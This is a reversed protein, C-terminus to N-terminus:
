CTKVKTVAKVSGKKKLQKMIINCANFIESNEAITIINGDQQIGKEVIAGYKELQKKVKEPAAIKKGRVIGAEALVSVATGAAVIIKGEYDAERILKQASKSKLLKEVNNTDVIAYLDPQEPNLRSYSSEAEVQIEQKKDNLGSSKRTSIAAVIVGSNYLCTGLARFNDGNFDKELLFAAIKESM